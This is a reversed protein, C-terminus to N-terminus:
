DDADTTKHDFKGVENDSITSRFDGVTKYTRKARVGERKKRPSPVFDFASQYEGLTVTYTPQDKVEVNVTDRHQLPSQKITLKLDDLEDGHHLLTQDKAEIGSKKQIKDKLGLITLSPEVVLPFKGSSTQVYIKMPELKLTSGNKITYEGLTRSDHCLLSGGFVIHQEDAPTKASTEVMKKVDLLTNNIAVPLSLTNGNFHKVHIQMGGLDLTTGDKIGYESVTKPDKLNKGNLFLQQDAAPIGTENEVKNKIDLIKDSPSVPISVKNGDPTNVDVQMEMPKILLTSKHPIECELLTKTEDDLIKGNKTTLQQDDTPIGNDDNIKKKVDGITANPPIIVKIKNSDPLQINVEIDGLVLVDNHKISCEQLTRSDQKSGLNKGNASLNQFPKPLGDPHGEIADKVKSIADSLNVTLSFTVGTARNEVLIITEKLHLTSGHDLGYETLTKSPTENDELFIDDLFFRQENTPICCKKLIRKRVDNLTDKSLDVPLKVAQGDTTVVDIECPEMKLTARHPISYDALTKEDQNLPRGQYTLRPDKIGYQKNLREKLDYVTDVMSDLDKVNYAKKGKWHQVDLEMGDLRLVDGTHIKLGKLTSDDKDGDRDIPKGNVLLQQEDVPIGTKEKIQQKITQLTDSPSLDVLPFPDRGRPREVLLEIPQLDLRSGPRIGYDKVTKEPQDLKSGDYSLDVYRKPIKEQSEIKSQIMSITDDPHINLLFEKGTSPEHVTVYWPDLDLTDGHKIGYDRLKLADDNIPQEDMSLLQDGPKISSKNEIYKKLQAITEQDNKPVDIVFLQNDDSSSSSLSPDFSNKIFVQMPQLRLVDGNKLGCDNLTQTDALPVGNDDEGTKPPLLRQESKPIGEGDEVKDKVSGITDSPRATVPIRKGDPTEVVIQITKPKKKPSRPSKKPSKSKPSKMGPGKVEDDDDELGGQKYLM